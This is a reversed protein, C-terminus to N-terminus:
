GDAEMRKEYEPESSLGLKRWLNGIIAGVLSKRRGLAEVILCDDKYGLGCYARIAPLNQPEVNLVVKTCSDLLDATVASTCISAMGQNRYDHHTLVNGVYAIGYTPSILHTGAVAVLRDNQWIGYYVGRRIQRPSFVHGTHSEYLMNLEKTHPPRLRTAMEAMPTFSDRTVIMRRMLFHSDLEYYREVTDLHDPQCTIFAEGPLSTADLLCDLVDANGMTFIYCPTMSRSILCLAFDDHHMAIFWKSLEFFGPELHAIAAASYSQGHELIPLIESIGTLRQIHVPDPERVDIRKSRKPKLQLRM